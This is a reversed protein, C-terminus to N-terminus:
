RAQVRSQRAGHWSRWRGRFARNGADSQEVLRNLRNELQEEECIRCEWVIVIRWGMRRLARQNRIDRQVNAKFKPEWFELRSKPMRALKCRLAGHRHWFCGHVFLACGLDPLVFDPHGPLKRAHKRHRIRLRRLISAVKKEPVTHKAKVRGMRESRQAPTLTDVM